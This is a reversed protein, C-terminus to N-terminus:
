PYTRYRHYEDYKSDLKNNRIAYCGLVYVITVLILVCVNFITLHRWQNRIDALVGAKCSNCDYCLKDKSNNWTTCDPDTVTPGTKPVEWFTTNKMTFGCREPPTCCGSQTTSLPKFILSDNNNRGGHVALNQCLRADMLCSKIESWRQDNIVYHQLWHSFDGIRHEKFGKGSVQEGVKKNTVFLAFVTFLMLGVIFFFAVLLYIYLAANVRCLSGVIALMSIVFVFLGGFLLPYQLVKQCDNGNAGGHIHIYASGGLAALGLFMTLINLVGVLTNSIRFM